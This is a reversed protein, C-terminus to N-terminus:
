TWFRSLVLLDVLNRVEHVPCLVKEIMILNKRVCLANWVRKNPMVNVLFVVHCSRRMGKVTGSGPPVRVKFNVLADNEYVDTVSAFTWYGSRQLDNASEPKVNSIVVIDGPSTRYPIRGDYCINRWYDVEVDFVLSGNPKVENFSILEAFPSKVIDKLSAAIYARTEELLPFSFSSLYHDVSDFSEPIKEM